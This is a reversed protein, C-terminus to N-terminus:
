YMLRNFDGKPNVKRALGHCTPCHISCEIGHDHIISTCSEGHPGNLPAYEDFDPFVTRVIGSGAILKACDNCPKCTVYMTAGVLSTRAYLLANPEAHISICNDYASLASIQNYSMLGRPCAGEICGPQGAPAGNYGTSLIRHNTDVIVAGVQRRRCDARLAVVNAIEAFYHDWDPRRAAM